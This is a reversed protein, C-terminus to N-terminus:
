AIVVVTVSETNEVAVVDCIICVSRLSVSVHSLDLRGLVYMSVWKDRKSNYIAFHRYITRNLMLHGHQHSILALVSRKTKPGICFHWKIRLPNSLIPILVPYWSIIYSFLRGNIRWLLATAQGRMSQNSEISHSFIFQIKICFHHQDIATSRINSQLFSHFICAFSKHISNICKINNITSWIRVSVITTRYLWKWLKSMIVILKTRARLVGVRHTKSCFFQESNTKGM